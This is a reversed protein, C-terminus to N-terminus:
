NYGQENLLTSAMSRFGHVTMEDKSYGLRRLGVPLTSNRGNMAGRNKRGVFLHPAPAFGGPFAFDRL